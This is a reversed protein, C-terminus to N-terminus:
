GYQRPGVFSDLGRRVTHSVAMDELTKDSSFSGSSLVNDAAITAAARVDVPLKLIREAVGLAELLTTVAKKTWTINVWQTVGHRCSM